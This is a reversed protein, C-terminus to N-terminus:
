AFWEKAAQIASLAILAIMGALAVAAIAAKEGTTLPRADRDDWIFM